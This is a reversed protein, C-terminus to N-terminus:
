FEVTKKELELLHDHRARVERSDIRAKCYMIHRYIYIHVYMCHYNYINLPYYHYINKRSGLSLLCHSGGGRITNLTKDRRQQEREDGGSRFGSEM